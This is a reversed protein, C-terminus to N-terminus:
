DKKRGVQRELWSLPREVDFFVVAADGTDTETAEIRDIRHGAHNVLAQDAVEFGQAHLFSYEEEIAIVVFATEPSQGDGTDAIAGLLGRAVTQHFDARVADGLQRYCHDAILHADINVYNADLIKAATETTRACDKAAFADFLTAKLQKATENYPDYHASKAYAERLAAFDVATDGGKLRAVLADYSPADTEAADAPALLLLLALSRGLAGM